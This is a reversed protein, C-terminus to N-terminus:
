FLDLEEEVVFLLPSDPDQLVCNVIIDRGALFRAMPVLADGSSVVCRGPEDKSREFHRMEVSPLPSSVSRVDRHTLVCLDRVGLADLAKVAGRGTAGLSIVAASLGRGYEGTTGMLQMAHVVSCYGALENNLQFVHTFSGDPAWNNMSEWAIVTLRRDIALQTMKENQVLHPWGWLVQGERMAALDGELPKPLLVVDCGEILQEQSRVGAVLPALEDDSLGFRHGYGEELYLSGALGPDIRGLHAPHIPLRFENEKRSRGFVGVSLRTM